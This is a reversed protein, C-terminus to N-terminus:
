LIEFDGKGEWGLGLAAELMSGVRVRVEWRGEEVGLGVEMEMWGKM